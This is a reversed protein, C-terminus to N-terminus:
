ADYLTAFGGEGGRWGGLAGEGGGVGEGGGAGEGGGGEGLLDGGGGLGLDGGGKGLGGGGLGGATEMERGAGAYPEGGGERAMDPRRRNVAVSLVWAVAVVPQAAVWCLQEQLEM